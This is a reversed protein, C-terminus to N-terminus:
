STPPERKLDMYDHRFDFKSPYKQADFMLHKFLAHQVHSILEGFEWCREQHFNIGEDFVAQFAVFDEQGERMPIKFHQSVMRMVDFDSHAILKNRLKMAEHHTALQPKSPSFNFMRFTLHFGGRGAAFPRTYAILATTEYCKYRRLEVRSIPEDWECESLFAIASSALQLDTLSYMMRIFAAREAKDRPSM